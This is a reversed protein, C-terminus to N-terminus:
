NGQERSGGHYYRRYDFARLVDRTYRDDVHTACRPCAILAALRTSGPDDYDKPARRVWLANACVPCALGTDACLECGRVFRLRLGLMASHVRCDPCVARLGLIEGTEPDVLRDVFEQVAEGYEHSAKGLQARIRALGRM